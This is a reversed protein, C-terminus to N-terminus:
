HDATLSFYKGKVAAKLMTIAQLKKTTLMDITTRYDPPTVVKNLSQIMDKFASSEGSKLPMTDVVLWKVYKKYFNDKAIAVTPFHDAILKQNAASTSKYKKENSLAVLYEEYQVKHTSRFHNVLPTPTYYKSCNIKTLAKILAFWV